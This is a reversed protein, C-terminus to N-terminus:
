QAPNRRCARPLQLPTIPSCPGFEKLRKAPWPLRTKLKVTRGLYSELNGADALDVRQIVVDPERMEFIELKAASSLGLAGERLSRSTGEPVFLRLGEIGRKESHNRSWDLWLVGFALMDEVSDAESPGAALLAWGHRGEHM